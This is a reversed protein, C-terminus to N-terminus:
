WLNLVLLFSMESIWFTISSFYVNLSVLNEMSQSETVSVLWQNETVWKNENDQHEKHSSDFSNEM